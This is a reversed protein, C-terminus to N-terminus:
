KQCLIVSSTSCFYMVVINSESCVFIKVELAIQLLYFVYPTYLPHDSDELVIMKFVLPGSTKSTNVNCYHQWVGVTCSDLNFMDCFLCFSLPQLLKKSRSLLM